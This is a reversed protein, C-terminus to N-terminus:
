VDNRTTIEMETMNLVLTVMKPRAGDRGRLLAPGNTANTYDVNVDRIMCTKFKKIFYSNDLGIFGIDVVRPYKLLARSLFNGSGSSPSGFVNGYSPLSSRQIENIADRLSRSDEESSPAFTWEFQFNKLAMGEFTITVHPNVVTGSVIGLADSIPAGGPISTLGARTLFRAAAAGSAGIDKVHTKALSDITDAGMGRLADMLGEYGGNQTTRFMDLAAAGIVGLETRADTNILYSDVINRPLPFLVSAVPANDAGYEYERFTLLM